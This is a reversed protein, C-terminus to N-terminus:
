ASDHSIKHKTKCKHYLSSSFSSLPIFFRWAIQALSLTSARGHQCRCRDVSFSTAFSFHFLVAMEEGFLFFFFIIGFCPIVFQVVSKAKLGVVVVNVVVVVVVVVVVHKVVFLLALFFFKSCIRYVVISRTFIREAPGRVMELQIACLIRATFM